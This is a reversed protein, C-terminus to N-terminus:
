TPPAKAPILSSKWKRLVTLFISDAKRNFVSVFSYGLPIALWLSWFFLVVTIV